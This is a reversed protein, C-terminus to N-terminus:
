CAPSAGIDIDQCTVYVPPLRLSWLTYKLGIYIYPIEKLKLKHPIQTRVIYVTCVVRYMYFQISNFNITIKHHTFQISYIYNYPDWFYYQYSHLNFHKEVFEQGVAAKM